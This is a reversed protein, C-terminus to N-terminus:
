FGKGRCPTKSDLAIRADESQNMPDVCPGYSRRVTLLQVLGSRRRMRRLEGLTM